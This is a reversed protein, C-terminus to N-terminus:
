GLYLGLERILRSVLCGGILLAPSRKASFLFLRNPATWDTLGAAFRPLM